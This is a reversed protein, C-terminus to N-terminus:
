RGRTPGQVNGPWGKATAEKIVVFSGTTTRRRMTKGRKMTKGEEDTRGRGSGKRMALVTDEEEHM